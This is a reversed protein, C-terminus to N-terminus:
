VIAYLEDGAKVTDEASNASQGNVTYGFWGSDDGWLKTVLLGTYGEGAPASGYGGYMDASDNNHALYLADDIDFKGNENHDTMAVPYRVLKLDGEVAITVYAVNEETAFASVPFMGLLMVFALLLSLIRKRM